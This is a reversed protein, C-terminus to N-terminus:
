RQTLKGYNDDPEMLVAVMNQDPVRRLEVPGRALAQSEAFTSRLSEFVCMKCCLRCSLTSAMMM